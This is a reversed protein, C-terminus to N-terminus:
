EATAPKQVKKLGEYYAALTLNYYPYVYIAAIGCTIGILIFWPLFSLQLIFLEMKHGTMMAMSQRQAEGASINPKDAMLFFMQSYAYQKVIGPIVFLLTWLFIFISYRLFGFFGREFNGGKFGDLLDSVKPRQDKTLIKLFVICFALQISGTILLSGLGFSVATIAAVAVWAVLALLLLIGIKGQMRERAKAKLEARDM